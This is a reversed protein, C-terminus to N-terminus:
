TEIADAEGAVTTDASAADGEDKDIWSLLFRVPKTLAKHIKLAKASFSDLKELLSGLKAIVDASKVKEAKIADQETFVVGLLHQLSSKFGKAGHIRYLSIAIRVRELGELLVIRLTADQVSSAVLEFLSATAETIDSLDDQSLSEENFYRRLEEDCFELRTLVEATISNTIVGHRTSQLYIPRIATRISPFGSLYRSHNLSLNAQILREVENVTENLALLYRTVVIDDPEPLGFVGAWVELLRANPDGGVASQLISYLRGAPNTQNTM